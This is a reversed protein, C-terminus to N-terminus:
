DHNQAEEQNPEAVELPILRQHLKELGRAIRGLEDKRQSLADISRMTDHMNLSHMANSIALLPRLLLGNFLVTGTGALLIMILSGLALANVLVGNGYSVLEQLNQGAVIVGIKKGKFDLLPLLTIGYNTDDVKQVIMRTDNVTRLLDSSVLNRIRQWNTASEVRLGGIIQDAEPPKLLTAIKLMLDNDVFIGLEAGTIKKIKELIPALGMSIGFSGIHGQADVVPTVGRVGLGQRGIELGIQLEQRQNALVITERFSSLDDGIGEKPTFVRLFSTAPPLQFNAEMVGYREKQINMIPTLIQLLQNRDKARFAQKVSPMNAVIEARSGANRGEEEFSKQIITATTKLQQQQTNEIAQLTSFYAFLTLILSTIIAVITFLLPIKFRLQM